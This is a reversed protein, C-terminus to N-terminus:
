DINKHTASKHEELLFAVGFFDQWRLNGQYLCSKIGNRKRTASFVLVNLDPVFFRVPGNLTGPNAERVTDKGRESRV